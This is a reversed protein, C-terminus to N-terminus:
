RQDVFLMARLSRVMEALRRKRWEAKSSRTWGHVPLLAFNVLILSGLQVAAAEPDLDPRFRGERQGQQIFAVTQTLWPLARKRVRSVSKSDRDLLLRLLLPASHPHDNFLREVAGVLEPLAAADIAGMAGVLDVMRGNAMALVDDIVADRLTDKSPFHYLLAQKSTGVRDAVDQLSVGEVGHEAFLRTAAKLVSTRVNVTRRPRPM